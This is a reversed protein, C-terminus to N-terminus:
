GTNQRYNLNEPYLDITARSAPRVGPDSVFRSGLFFALASETFHIRGQHFVSNPTQKQSKPTYICPSCSVYLLVIILTGTSM